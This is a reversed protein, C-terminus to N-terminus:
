GLQGPLVLKEKPPFEADYKKFAEDNEDVSYPPPVSYSGTIGDLFGEDLEKCLLYTAEPDEAYRIGKEIAPVFGCKGYFEINGCILLCGAGMKKAIEMSHNLLKTGFGKRKYDPRISIPGFTMMRIKRGDDADIRWWAYMVHGIIEGQIEMVLSLEPVFGSDKRYCHLVYHEICGPRYVNWFAERTLNEVTRFDDPQETRIKVWRKKRALEMRERREALLAKKKEDSNKKREGRGGCAKVREGHFSVIAAIENVVASFDNHVEELKGRRIKREIKLLEATLLELEKQGKVKKGQLIRDLRLKDSDWTSDLDNLINKEELYKKFDGGFQEKYAKSIANALKQSFFYMRKPKLTEIVRMLWRLSEKKDKEVFYTDLLKDPIKKDFRGELACPRLFFRCVSIDDISAGSKSLTNLLKELLPNRDFEARDINRAKLKEKNGEVFSDLSCGIDQTLEKKLKEIDYKGSYFVDPKKFPDYTDKKTPDSFNGEELFVGEAVLLVGDYEESPSYNPGVYYPCFLLCLEKFYEKGQLYDQLDTKLKSNM